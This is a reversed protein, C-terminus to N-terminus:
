REVAQPMRKRRDQRVSADALLHPHREGAVLGAVNMLSVRMVLQFYESSCDPHQWSHLAMCRSGSTVFVQFRIRWGQRKLYECPQRLPIRKKPWADLPRPQFRESPEPRSDEEPPTKDQKPFFAEPPISRLTGLRLVITVCLVGFIEFWAQSSKRRPFRVASCTAFLFLMALACLCFVGASSM